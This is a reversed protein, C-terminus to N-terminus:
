KKGIVHFVVRQKLKKLLDNKRPCLLLKYVRKDTITYPRKEMRQIEKREFKRFHKLFLTKKM